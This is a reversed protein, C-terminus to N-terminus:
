TLLKFLFSKKIIAHKASLTLPITYLAKLEKTQENLDSLIKDKQVFILNYMNILKIKM